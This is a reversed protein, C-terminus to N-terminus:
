PLSKLRNSSDTLDIPARCANQFAKRASAENQRLLWLNGLHNYLNASPYGLSVAQDLSLIAQDLLTPDPRASDLVAQKLILDGMKEWYVSQLFPDGQFTPGATTLANITKEYSEGHLQGLNSEIFPKLAQDAKVWRVVVARNGSTLPFVWLMWGGDPAVPEKSLAYAKASGFRKDLFPKYNANILLAAWQAKDVSLPSNNLANYCDDAVDLTLDSLGPV